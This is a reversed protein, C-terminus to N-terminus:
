KAPPTQGDSSDKPSKPAKHSKKGSASKESNQTDKNDKADKAPAKSVDKTDNADKPAAAPPDKKPPTDSAFSIASLSIALAAACLFTFFRKM